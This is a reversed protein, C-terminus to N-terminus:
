LDRGVKNPIWFSHSPLLTVAWTMPKSPAPSFSPDPVRPWIREVVASSTSPLLYSGLSQILCAKTWPHAWSWGRQQTIQPLQRLM